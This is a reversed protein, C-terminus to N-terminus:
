TGINIKRISTKLCTKSLYYDRRVGSFSLILPIHGACLARRRNIMVKSSEPSHLPLYISDPAAVPVVSINEEPVAKFINASFNHYGNVDTKHDVLIHGGKSQSLIKLFVVYKMNINLVGGEFGKSTSPTLALSSIKSHNHLLPVYTVYGSLILNEAEFVNECTRM